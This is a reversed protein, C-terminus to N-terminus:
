KRGKHQHRWPRTLWGFLKALFRGVRGKESIIRLLEQREGEPDREGEVIENGAAM